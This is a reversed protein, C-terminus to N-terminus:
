LDNLDLKRARGARAQAVAQDALKSLLNASKPHSFLEDWRTESAIERLVLAGITDQEDEPLERAKSFADELLKTM